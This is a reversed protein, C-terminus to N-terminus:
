VASLRMQLVASSRVFCTNARHVEKAGVLFENGRCDLGRLPRGQNYEVAAHLESALGEVFAALDDRSRVNTPNEM